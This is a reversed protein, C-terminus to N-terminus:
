VPELSELVRKALAEELPRRRTSPESRIWVSVGFSVNRRRVAVGDGWWLSEDGLRLPIPTRAITGDTAANRFAQLFSAPGGARDVPWSLANLIVFSPRGEGRPARKWMCTSSYAGEKTYGLDNRVHPEVSWGTIQSVHAPSLLSCADIPAVRATPEPTSAGHSSPAGALAAFTIVVLGGLARSGLTRSKDQVHGRITLPMLTDGPNSTPSRVSPRLM